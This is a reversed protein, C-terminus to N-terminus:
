WDSRMVGAYGERVVTDKREMSEREIDLRQPLSIHRCALARARRVKDVALRLTPFSLLRQAGHRVM